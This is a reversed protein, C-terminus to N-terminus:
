KVFKSNLGWFDLSFAECETYPDDHRDTGFTWDSLYFNQSDRTKGNLQCLLKYMSSMRCIEEHNIWMSM